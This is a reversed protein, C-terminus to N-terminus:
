WRLTDVHGVNVDPREADRTNAPGQIIGRNPAMQHSQDAACRVVAVTRGVMPLDPLHTSADPGFPPHDHPAHRNPISWRLGTDASTPTAADRV